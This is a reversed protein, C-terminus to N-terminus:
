LAGAAPYARVVPRRLAHVTNGSHDFRLDNNCHGFPLRQIQGGRAEFEAVTEASGAPHPPAKPRPPEKITIHSRAAPPNANVSAYSARKQADSLRSAAITAERKEARRSADTGPKRRLTRKDVCTTGTPYYRMVGAGDQWRALKERQWCQTLLASVRTRGARTNYDFAEAVDRVSLGPKELVAKQIDFTLSM